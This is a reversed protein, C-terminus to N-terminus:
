SFSNSKGEVDKEKVSEPSTSTSDLSKLPVDVDSKPSESKKDGETKKEESSVVKDLETASKSELYEFFFICDVFLVLRM